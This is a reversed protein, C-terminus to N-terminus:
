LERVERPWLVTLFQFMNCVILSLMNCVILSLAVHGRRGSDLFALPATVKDWPKERIEHRGGTVRRVNGTGAEFTSISGLDWRQPRLQFGKERWAKLSLTPGVFRPSASEPDNVAEYFTHFM